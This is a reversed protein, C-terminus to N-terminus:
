CTVKNTFGHLIDLTKRQEPWHSSLQFMWDAWLYFRIQRHQILMSMSKDTLKFTYLM